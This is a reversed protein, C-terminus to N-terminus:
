SRGTDTLKVCSETISREEVKLRATGIRGSRLSVVNAVHTWGDPDDLIEHTFRVIRYRTYIEGSGTVETFVPDDVVSGTSTDEPLIRHDPEAM